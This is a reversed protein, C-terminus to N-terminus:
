DSASSASTATPHQGVDENKLAVFVLFGPPELQGTKRLALLVASRLIWFYTFPM